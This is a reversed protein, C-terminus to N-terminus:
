AEQVTLSTNSCVMGHTRMPPMPLGEAESAALCVEPLVFCAFCQKIEDWSPEPQVVSVSPMQTANALHWVSYSLATESLQIAALTCCGLQGRRKPQTFM